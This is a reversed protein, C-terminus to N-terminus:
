GTARMLISQVRSVLERPSFPKVLYDTAGVSFGLEVDAEQAKATLMIIPTTATAPTSRLRRCVDIGSLKPMMLDLLVLDPPTATAAALGAEGDCEARVDFGVQRLKFVVLERIDVDDEIILVQQV